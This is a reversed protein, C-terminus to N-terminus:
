NRVIRGRYMRVRGGALDDLEPGKRVTTVLFEGGPTVVM